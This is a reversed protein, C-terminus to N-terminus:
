GPKGDTQLICRADGKRGQSRIRWRAKWQDFTGWCQTEYGHEERACWLMVTNIQERTKKNQNAPLSFGRQLPAIANTVRDYINEAM